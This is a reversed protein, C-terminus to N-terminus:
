KVIVKYAIIKDELGKHVLIYTTGKILGQLKNGVAQVVVGDAFIVTDNEALGSYDELLSLQLTESQLRYYIFGGMKTMVEFANDTLGVAFWRYMRNYGFGNSQFNLMNGYVSYWGYTMTDFGYMFYNDYGIYTHDDNFTLLEYYGAERNGWLWSGTLSVDEESMAKEVFTVSDIESIPVDHEM